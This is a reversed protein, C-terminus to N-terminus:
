KMGKWKSFLSNIEEETIQIDCERLLMYVDTDLLNVYSNEEPILRRKIIRYEQPSIKVWNGNEYSETLLCKAISSDSLFDDESDYQIIGNALEIEMAQEYDVDLRLLDSCYLVNDNSTIERLYGYTGNMNGTLLYMEKLLYIKRDDYNALIKTYDSIQVPEGDKDLVAPVIDEGNFCYFTFYGGMSGGSHHYVGLEPIRDFNFDLLYYGYIPFDHCSDIDASLLFDRYAQFYTKNIEINQKSVANDQIANPEIQTGSSCADLLMINVTFIGAAIIKKHQSM